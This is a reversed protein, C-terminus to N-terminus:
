ICKENLQKLLIKRMHVFLMARIKNKNERDLWVFTNSMFDSLSLHSCGRRPEIFMMMFPMM